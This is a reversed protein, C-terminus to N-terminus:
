GQTGGSLPLRHSAARRLVLLAADRPCLLSLLRIDAQRAHVYAATPVTIGYAKLRDLENILDEASNLCQIQSDM